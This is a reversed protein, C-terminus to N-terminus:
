IQGRNNLRHIASDMQYIVKITDSFGCAPLLFRIRRQPDYLPIKMIRSGHWLFGGGGGTPDEANQNAVRAPMPAWSAEEPYGANTGCSFRRKTVM